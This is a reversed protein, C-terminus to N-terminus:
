EPTRRVWWIKHAFDSRADASWWFERRRRTKQKLFGRDAVVDENTIIRYLSTKSFLSETYFTLNNIAYFIFIDEYRFGGQV